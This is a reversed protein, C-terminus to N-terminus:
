LEVEVTGDVVRARWTQVPAPPPGSLVAGSAIDFTGLHCPCVVTRGELDGGSLSCQMHTCADAFAYVEGDVRALAVKRGDVDAAALEGEDPAPLGTSHYRM